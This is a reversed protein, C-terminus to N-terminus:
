DDVEIGASSAVRILNETLADQFEGSDRADFYARYIYRGKKKFPRHVSRKRGVRGGFDLFPYYLARGGGGSVRAKTRTSQAKVSRKAKGSRSPVRPKADDVIVNAAENLALRLAKPLDSDLRKLNKSFKKLGDIKIAETM